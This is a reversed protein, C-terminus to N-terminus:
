LDRARIIISLIQKWGLSLVLGIFVQLVDSITKVLMIVNYSKPSGALWAIEIIANPFSISIAWIGILACGLAFWRDPSGDDDSTDQIDKLLWEAIPQPRQWIVYCAVVVVIWLALSLYLSAKRSSESMRLLADLVESISSRICNFAVCIAILRLLVCLIQKQRKM